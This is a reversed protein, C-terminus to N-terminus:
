LRLLIWLLNHAMWWTISPVNMREPVMGELQVFNVMFPNWSSSISISYKSRHWTCNNKNNNASIKMENSNSWCQHTYIKNTNPICQGSLDRAACTFYSFPSVILAFYHFIFSHFLNPTIRTSAHKVEVMKQSSFILISCQAFEFSNELAIHKMHSTRLYEECFEHASWDSDHQVFMCHVCLTLFLM